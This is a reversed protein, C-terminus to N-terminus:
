QGLKPLKLYLISSGLSKYLDKYWLTNNTDNYKFYGFIHLKAFKPPPTINKDRVALGIMSNTYVKDWHISSYICFIKIHLMNLKQWYYVQVAKLILACLIFFKKVVKTLIEKM